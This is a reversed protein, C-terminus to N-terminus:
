KHSPPPLNDISIKVYIIQYHCQEHLSGHVGSEIFLNPHDTFLLDICSQSNGLIYTAQSILQELGLGATFPEFLKGADNELDKGWLQASRANFDGTIVMWYPNETTMKPLMLDFKDVFSWTRSPESM